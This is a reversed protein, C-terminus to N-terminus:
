RSVSTRIRSRRIQDREAAVQVGAAAALDRSPKRAPTSQLLGASQGLSQLLRRVGEPMSGHVPAVTTRAPGATELSAATVSYAAPAPYQRSETASDELSSIM